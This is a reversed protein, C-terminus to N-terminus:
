PNTISRPAARQDLAFQVGGFAGLIEGTLFVALPASEIFVGDSARRWKTADITRAANGAANEKGARESAPTESSTHFSGVQPQQLSHTAWRRLAPNVTVTYSLPLAAARAL